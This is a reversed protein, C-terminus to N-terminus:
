RLFFEYKHCAYKDSIEAILSGLVIEMRSEGCVAAHLAHIDNGVPVRALRAAEREDFHRFRVCGLGGNSLQIPGIEVPSRQIYIFRTGFWGTTSGTLPAEARASIASSSRAPLRALM